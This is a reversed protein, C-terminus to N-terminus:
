NKGTEEHVEETEIDTVQQLYSCLDELNAFGKREGTLPFEISVRKTPGGDDDPLWLRLLFSLYSTDEKVMIECQWNSGMM